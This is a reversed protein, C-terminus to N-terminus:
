NLKIFCRLKGDKFLLKRPWLELTLTSKLEECTLYWNYIELEVSNNDGKCMQQLNRDKSLQKKFYVKEQAATDALLYMEGRNHFHLTPLKNSAAQCFLKWEEFDTVNM